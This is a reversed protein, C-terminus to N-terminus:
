PNKARRAAEVPNELAVVDGPILGKAVILDTDNREGAEIAHLQFDNGKQVYVAPQGNSLFSGKLPILLRNRVVGTIVTAPGTMGPRLRPDPRRITAYAPFLKAPPGFERFTLEAVPGIFEVKAHFEKDPIADVRFKMAMGVRVAGRDVDDLKLEIRMQSPDLIEAVASGAWVRDGEHFPSPSGFSAAGRLNPLVKVIGAAPARLVMEGACDGSCNRGASPVGTPVQPPADEPLGASAPVKEADISPEGDGAPEAIAPEGAGGAALGTGSHPAGFAVVIDGKHVLKGPEALKLIRLDQALPASLTVLAAGSVEGRTEITLTLDGIRAKAVPVDVNPAAAGYHYAAFLGGACVSLLGAWLAARNRSFRRRDMPRDLIRDPLM